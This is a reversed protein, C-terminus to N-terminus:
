YEISYKQPKRGPFAVTNITHFVICRLCIAHRMLGHCRITTYLISPYNLFLLLQNPQLDWENHLYVFTCITHTTSDAHTIDCVAQTILKVVSLTTKM